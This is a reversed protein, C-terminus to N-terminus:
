ENSTSREAEFKQRLAREARRADRRVIILDFLALLMSTFTLWICAVWFFMVRWPHEHLNLAPRFFTLGSILLVVVVLLLGLMVQRRMKQDRIAGRTAHVTFSVTRLPKEEPSNETM